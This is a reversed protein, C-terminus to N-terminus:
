IDETSIYHTQLPLCSTVSDTFSLNYNWEVQGGIKGQNNISQTIGAQNQM